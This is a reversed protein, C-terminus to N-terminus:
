LITMLGLAASAYLAFIFLLGEEEKKIGLIKGVIVLILFYMGVLFPFWM